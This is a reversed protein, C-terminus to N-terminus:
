IDKKFADFGEETVVFMSQFSKVFIKKDTNSNDTLDTQIFEIKSNPSTHEFLLKDCDGLGRDCVRRTGRQNWAVVRDFEEKTVFMKQFEEKIFVTYDSCHVTIAYM